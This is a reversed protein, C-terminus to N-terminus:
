FTYGFSVGGWPIIKNTKKNEYFQVFSLKAYFGAGRTFEYEIATTIRLDPHDDITNGGVNLDITYPKKQFGFNFGLRSKPLKYTILYVGGGGNLGIRLGLNQYIIREYNISGWSGSGLLELYVYNESERVNESTLLTFTGSQGYICSTSLWLTAIIFTVLRIM